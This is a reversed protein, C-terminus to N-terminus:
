YIGEKDKAYKRRRLEPKPTMGVKRAVATNRAAYFSYYFIVYM